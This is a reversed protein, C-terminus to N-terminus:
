HASGYAGTPEKTHTESFVLYFAFVVSVETSAHFSSM